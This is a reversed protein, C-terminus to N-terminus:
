VRRERGRWYPERLHRVMLKGTSHRPLESEFDVSRPVKYGALRERGFALIERELEPSAEFDPRLEVAAKVSEGWEDDPIGFVAVDAVAPHAQIVGEIEAPYINVGGSIIVNTKRDSLYVFGEADIRGVDGLTFSHPDLYADRTKQADGHYEFFRELDNHRSYLLGEEGDPLRKGSDDVAFVEFQPLVRGVTGPHSLWEESDVLTTVGGETGGWYEVLVPGWWELMRRKVDPAIPAAGHLVLHLDPAVFAAREVDPLRLLRVFLTPVLHTHHVARERLLALTEREDFRPQIIVPAGNLHDYVAFMLPAAHYVPGTVLHPGSGDLAIRRGYARAADLAAQASAPRRRKVGKPCGSTGSTYIMNGGAPGDTSLPSASVSVLASDLEDGVHLIERAGASRAATEHEPDVFVIRAGSDRVVHEIESPQLHRNIPTMWVGSLLAALILEVSELRNGLLSAAHDGPALRLSDRLLHTLRHLRDELEAWSRRRVGDDLAVEDPASRSKEFIM